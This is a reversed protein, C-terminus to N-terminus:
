SNANCGSCLYETPSGVTPSVVMVAVPANLTVEPSFVPLVGLSFLITESSLVLSTIQHPSTLIGIEGCPNALFLALATSKKLIQGLTLIYM